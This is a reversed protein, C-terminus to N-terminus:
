QATFAIIQKFYLTCRLNTFCTALEVLTGTIRGSLKTVDVLLLTFFLCSSPHSRMQKKVVLHM